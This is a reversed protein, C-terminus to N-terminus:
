VDEIVVTALSTLITLCRKEEEAKLLRIKLNLLTHTHMLM